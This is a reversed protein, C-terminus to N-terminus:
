YLGGPRRGGAIRAPAVLPVFWQLQEIGVALEPLLTKVFFASEDFGDSRQFRPVPTKLQSPLPL